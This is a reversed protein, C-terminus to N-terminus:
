RQAEEIPVGGSGSLAAQIRGQRTAATVTLRQGEATQAEPLVWHRSQGPLVYFRRDIEALPQRSAGLLAISSVEAHVTGRNEVRLVAGDASKPDFRWALDPPVPNVPAVFVPLSINLLTSIQESRRALTEPVERIFIRYAQEAPAETPRTLGIRVVQREGPQLEFIPPNLLVERTDAFRDTGDRHSWEMLTLHLLMPDAGPNAITLVGIPRDAALNVQIPSVKLQGAQAPVVSSALVLSAWIALILNPSGHRAM